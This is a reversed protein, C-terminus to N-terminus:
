RSSSAWSQNWRMSSLPPWGVQVCNTWSTLAHKPGGNVSLGMPSSAMIHHEPMTSSNQLRKMVSDQQSVERVSCCYIWNNMVPKPSGRRVSMASWYSVVRSSTMMKARAYSYHLVDHSLTWWGDDRAGLREENMSAGDEANAEGDGAGAAEADVETLLGADLAM